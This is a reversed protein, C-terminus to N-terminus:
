ISSLPTPAPIPLLIEGCIVVVRDLVIVLYADSGLDQVEHTRIKDCTGRVKDREETWYDHM